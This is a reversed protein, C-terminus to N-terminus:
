PKLITFVPKEEVPVLPKISSITIREKKEGSRKYLVWTGAILLLILAVGIIEIPSKMKLNNIHLIAATYVARKAKEWDAITKKWAATSSDPTGVHM